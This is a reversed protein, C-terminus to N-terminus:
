WRRATEYWWLCDIVLSRQNWPMVHVHKTFRCNGCYIQNETFRIGSMTCICLIKSFFVVIDLMDSKWDILNKVRHSHKAFVCTIEKLSNLNEKQHVTGRQREWSVDCVRFLRNLLHNSNLYKTGSGVRGVSSVGATQSIWCDHDSIKRGLASEWCAAKYHNAEMTTRTWSAKVLLLLGLSLKNKYNTKNYAKIFIISVLSNIPSKRITSSIFNIIDPVQGIFDRERRTEGM